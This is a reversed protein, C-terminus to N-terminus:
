EPIGNEIGYEIHEKLSEIVKDHQNVPFIAGIMGGIINALFYVTEGINEPNGHHKELARQVSIAVQKKIEFENKADM